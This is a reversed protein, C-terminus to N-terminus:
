RECPTLLDYRGIQKLVEASKMTVDEGSFGCTHIATMIAHLLEYDQKEKENMIIFPAIPQITFMTKNIMKNEGM